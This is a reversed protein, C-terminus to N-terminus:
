PAGDKRLELELAFRDCRYHNIAVELVRQRADLVTRHRCLLPTGIAVALATALEADAAVATISEQSREPRFGRPGLVDYLPLRLDDDASLPVDSPFWSRMRVVPATGDGRLRTLCPLAVDDNEDLLAATREDPIVRELAVALQKIAIGRAEMEKSFSSWAGLRHGVPQKVVKTGVGRSRQILGEGVLRGLAARVTARSVSLKEALSLEDPLLAGSQYSPEVILRRLLAEVQVHLPETATPDLKLIKATSM